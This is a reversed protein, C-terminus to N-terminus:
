PVNKFNTFALVMIATTILLFIDATLSTFTNQESNYYGLMVDLLSIFKRILYENASNPLTGGKTNLNIIYITELPM